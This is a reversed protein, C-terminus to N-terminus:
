EELVFGGAPFRGTENAKDLVSTFQRFEEPKMGHSKMARKELASLEPPASVPPRGGADPVFVPPAAPTPATVVPAAPTAPAGAMVTAAASAAATAQAATPAAGGAMQKLGAATLAVLVQVQPNALTQPDGNTLNSIAAQTFKDEIGKSRTADYIAQVGQQGQQAQVHAQLPQVQERILQEAVAKTRAAERALVAKATNLDLQGSGDAKYLGLTRATDELEQPSPGTEVPATVTPRAVAEVMGQLRQVQDRLERKEHREDSLAKLIGAKEVEWNSPVILPAPPPPEQTVAPPPPAEVPAPPEATASVQRPAPEPNALEAPIAAPEGTDTELTILNGDDPM